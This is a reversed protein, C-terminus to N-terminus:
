SFQEITTNAFSIMEEYNLFSAQASTAGGGGKANFEQLLAKIHKGCHVELSGAHAFFVKLESKSFLLVLKETITLLQKSFTLIDKFPMDDFEYYIINKDVQDSAIQQALFLFNAEKQSVIEKQLEKNERELKLLRDYLTERSTSFHTTIDSLVSNAVQYDLLARAGCKFHLRTNGKHKETKILKIMGLQGTKNVHTGCCASTDIGDIEVIRINESIEPLKRLPLSSLEDKTVFFTRITRNEYIYQNAKHEIQLLQESTLEPVNLDITVNEKGLHFSVTHAEYLEICVASLLHQGTHQQMHDFRRNWDLECSVQKFTPSSALKHYIDGNETEIVDLVLQGDITGYDSPQGGGEPYFATEALKILVFDDKPLTELIITKWNHIMPYKYFLKNSM